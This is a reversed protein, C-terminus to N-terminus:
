ECIQNDPEGQKVKERWREWKDPLMEEGKLEENSSPEESAKLSTWVKATFQFYTGGVVEDVELQFDCLWTVTQKVMSQGNFIALGDDYYSGTYKLKKVIAECM